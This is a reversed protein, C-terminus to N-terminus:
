ENEIVGHCALYISTNILTNLDTSWSWGLYKATYNAQIIFLEIATIFGRHAAKHCNPCLLILNTLNTRGGSAVPIIHHAQLIEAFTGWGCWACNIGYITYLDSKLRIVYSRERVREQQLIDERLENIDVISNPGQAIPDFIEKSM